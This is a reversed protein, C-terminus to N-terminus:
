RPRITATRYRHVHEAREVAITIDLDNQAIQLVQQWAAMSNVQVGNVQTLLDGEQLGLQSWFSGEVLKRVRLGAMTSQVGAMEVYDATLWAQQLLQARDRLGINRWQTMMGERGSGEQAVQLLTKQTVASSNVSTLRVGLPAAGPELRLIFHHAGVAFVASDRGIRTLSSQPYAPLADGERLVYRLSEVRDELTVANESPKDPAHRIAVLRLVPMDMATTVVNSVTNAASQGAFQTPGSDDPSEVALPPAFDAPIVKRMLRTELIFFAAETAPLGSRATFADFDSRLQELEGRLDVCWNGQEWGFYQLGRDPWDARGFKYLRGQASQEAVTLEGLRDSARLDQGILGRQLAFALLQSAGMAQLQAAPSMLRLFMVQLQLTPELQQLTAADAHLALQQLYPFYASSSACLLAIGAGDHATAAAIWRAALQRIASQDASATTGTLEAATVGHCLVVALYAPLAAACLLRHWRCRM